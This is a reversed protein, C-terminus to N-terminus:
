DDPVNPNTLSVRTVEGDAWNLVPTDDPIGIWEHDLGEPHGGRHAGYPGDIFSKDLPAPFSTLRTKSAGPPVPQTISGFVWPQPKAIEFKQIQPIIPPPPMITVPPASIPIIKDAAKKEVPIVTEKAAPAEFSFPKQCLTNEPHKFCYEKCQGFNNQCYENCGDEGSCLKGLKVTDEIRRVTKESSPIKEGRFVLFGGVGIGIIIMAIIIVIIPAFGKSYRYM